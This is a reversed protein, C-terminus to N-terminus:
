DHEQGGEAIAEAAAAANEAEAEAENLLDEEIRM